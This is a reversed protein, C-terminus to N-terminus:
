EVKAGCSACFASASDVAANCAPCIKVDRLGNIKQKLEEIEAKKGDIEACKQGIAEGIDDDSKFAAYVMEGMEKYIQTVKTEADSVALKLKTIEVLENSKQVATKAADGLKDKMTDLFGM